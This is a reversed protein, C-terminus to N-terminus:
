WLIVFIELRVVRIWENVWETWVAASHREWALGVTTPTPYLKFLVCIETRTSITNQHLFSVFHTGSIYLTDTTSSLVTSSLDPFTSPSNATKFLGSFTEGSFTVDPCFVQLVYPLSSHSYTPLRHPSTGPSSLLLLWPGPAAQRIYGPGSSVPTVWAASCSLSCSSILASVYLSWM